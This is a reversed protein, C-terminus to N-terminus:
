NESQIWVSYNNQLRGQTILKKEGSGSLSASWIQKQQDIRALEGFKLM